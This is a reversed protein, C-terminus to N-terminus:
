PGRRGRAWVEVINMTNAIDVLPDAGLVVFDARKGPELTGRDNLQLVKAAERTAIGLAQLPTLGAQVMLALERHEAVGPVREPTGGSDTGFGVKVGADFLTKLNVLGHKLSRRAAPVKADRLKRERWAPSARQAAFEPSLAATVFKSRTWPAREAWAVTAEDLQLTALYWTGRKKMEAILADDVPGDRVGHALVDVGAKVAARADELDHVHAAVRLGVTHAEDIVAMLVEPKMKQKVQGGFDDLWLKVFDTERAKMQRVADRAEEATAPRFLQDADLKVMDQPPAGDPVGVGRDAGLVDAGTLRGAHADRRVDVFAAGNFGLSMVTTVGSRRYRELTAVMNERTYGASGVDVGKVHGVHSHDSILGPIIFKGRVDRVEADEPLEDAGVSIVRGEDIILTAGDLVRNGDFVRGGTFAIPRALAVSSILALWLLKMLGM